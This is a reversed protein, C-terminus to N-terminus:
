CTVSANRHASRRALRTEPTARIRFSETEALINDWRNSVPRNSRYPVVQVPTHAGLLVQEVVRGLRRGSPNGQGHLGIVILEAGLRNAVELIALAVGDKGRVDGAPGNVGPQHGNLESRAPVILCSPPRRSLLSLERLLTQAAELDLPGSEHAELVHLLTVKGGTARAVDCAHQAADRSWVSFDVAVLM